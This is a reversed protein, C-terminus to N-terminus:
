KPLIIRTKVSAFRLYQLVNRIVVGTYAQVTYLITKTKTINFKTQSNPQGIFAFTNQTCYCINLLACKFFYM